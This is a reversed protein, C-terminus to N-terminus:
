GDASSWDRRLPDINLSVLNYGSDYAVQSQRSSEDLLTVLTGNPWGLDAAFADFRISDGSPDAALFPAQVRIGLDDAAELWATVLLDSASDM